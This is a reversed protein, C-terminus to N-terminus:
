TCIAFARLLAPGLVDETFRCTIAQDPLMTGGRRGYDATPELRVSDGELELMVAKTGKAFATWSRAGAANLIPAQVKGWESQAPHPVDIRSQRLATIAKGGIDAPSEPIAIFVDGWNIWGGAVSRSAAQM